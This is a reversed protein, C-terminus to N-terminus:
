KATPLNQAFLKLRRTTISLHPCLVSAFAFIMRLRLQEDPHHQQWGVEEEEQLNKVNERM